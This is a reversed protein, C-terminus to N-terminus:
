AHGSKFSRDMPSKFVIDPIDEGEFPMAMAPQWM